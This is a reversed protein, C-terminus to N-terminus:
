ILRCKRGIRKCVRKKKTKRNETDKTQETKFEFSDKYITLLM